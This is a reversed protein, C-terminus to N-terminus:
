QAQTIKTEYQVKVPQAGKIFSALKRASVKVPEIMFEPVNFAFLYKRNFEPDRQPLAFPKTFKGDDNLHSLYLRTYIGDERRTSIVIWKGTSSWAHYSEACDSNIEDVYRRTGDKLDFMFLDSVKQYPPFVGHTSICCLMYRGDPSIKPWTISSDVAAADFFMETPGWARTDPDFPKSYLNYKVEKMHVAMQNVSEMEPYDASTYFLTHGDPSWAPHCELKQPSDEIVSIANDKINYLILDSYLDLAEIRDPDVTHMIQYTKNTSYAIYDHTPHWSPYVAAALTSDTNMNMKLLKGDDYFITGGQYQRVHFQMHDTKYDKYYHCNICQRSGDRMVMSNAYIVKEDFSTLDRQNISLRQYSEFSHPIVRYSIYNDIKDASVYIRFPKMKKWSGSKKEYVTVTVDGQSLLARWKKVPVSVKKGNICINESGAEFVTLYRDAEDQILFNAPAINIPVTIETNDPFVSPCVSEQYSSDPIRHCGTLVILVTLLIYIRNM